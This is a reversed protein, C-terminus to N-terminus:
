LGHLSTGTNDYYLIPCRRLVRDVLYRQSAKLLSGSARLSHAHPSVNRAFVACLSHLKGAQSLM